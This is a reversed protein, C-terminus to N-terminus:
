QNYHRSAFNVFLESLGSLPGHPYVFRFSREFQIKGIELTKLRSLQLEKQISKESVIGIADSTELFNKISETSGLHLLINLNNMTIGHKRLSQEIVELTGSGPERLVIPITTLESKNLKEKKALKGETSAVVVLQDPMWNKYQLDSSSFHSEVIGLDIDGRIIKQEIERSNGNDLSLEIDPFRQHFAALVAPILYQSISSSAGIRLLGSFKHKLNGLEFELEKHLKLIEGVQRYAIEGANTLHIQNGQRQFLRIEWHNELEKIHRTVAPQSIYLERAAQTFSLLSAVKHFVQLRYDLM